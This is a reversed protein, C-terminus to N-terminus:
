VVSKREFKHISSNLQSDVKVMYYKVLEQNALTPLM